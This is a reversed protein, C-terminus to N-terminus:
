YKWKNKKGKKKKKMQGPPYKKKHSDHYVYPTGTELALTVHSGLEIEISRPLSVSMQWKDGSLYFYMNRGPDFYVASSPYYYYNHKARAGYAKAHPPPGVREHQGIRIGLDITKCGTSLLMFLTCMLALARKPDVTKTM